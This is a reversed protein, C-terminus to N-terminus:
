FLSSSCMHLFPCQIFTHTRTYSIVMGCNSDTYYKIKLNFFLKCLTETSLLIVGLLLFNFHM